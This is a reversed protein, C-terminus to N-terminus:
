VIGFTNCKENVADNTSSGERLSQDTKTRSRSSVGVLVLHKPTEETNKDDTILQRHTSRRAM